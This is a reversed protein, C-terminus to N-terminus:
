PTFRVPLRIQRGSRTTKIQESANDTPAVQSEKTTTSECPNPEDDSEMHAPKLRDISINVNKGRIDVTFHKERKEKIEYPGDYPTHLSPRVFDNRVFVHTSHELDKFVFPKSSDHNSTQIPRIERMSEALEKVFESQPQFKSDIFFEGPLRLPTGYVMQAATTKMDEKYSTRLGLLILPLKHSWDIRNHCMISAKLTRHWREIIGNAQPHYATTRIRDIGLLRSLENFLNSEFQRGQDTTIRAPIGFRSIWTNILAKAVTDAQMDIIPIAEPWRTYRDMITLCYKFENSPPLPGILDINIHEFRQSPLTYQHVASHNHRSIKARQCSLCRKVFDSIESGMHPWVFRQKIMKTTSRAGNHAIGHIKNIVNRRHTSPIFPRANNTSIDCYLTTSSNPIEISKLQMSTNSEDLLKKLEPCTTQADAIQQYDITNTEISAIRSLTDATTNEIGAIHKISTTFQGIYDLQRCQRPSARESNQKFAFTLPKHDTLVDFVRGELMCRFHRIGLYIALLERDYTSYKQQPPTLKLSFFGLPQFQDDIIQHLVAGVATDSADTSLAIQANPAPHVLLTANALSKKCENFHNITTDTWEIPTNDNKKNGPILQVLPAQHNVAQPLFRRYFNIMALFRRLEKAVKPLPYENIAKVKDQLPTIGKSDVLHGLFEISTRGFHCKAPNITLHFQRLREFVQKLHQRHQNIDESAVCIDDLYVFVFKLGRLVAHMYRQFTQASNCLGFLMHTFEFLGFPTTIATKPIDRPEIPIQNYARNLDIKSFVTKGHLIHTFDQIHPLPYRDPITQANLARYDGCPRWEGSSKKVLHLPSAYSSKSPRCIGLKILFEFENKAATFKEPTLRRPKAFTPPGRTEICHTVDATTPKPASENFQTIDKYQELLDAFQTSTDFTKISPSSTISCIGHQALLTQADILKSHKLDVLLNHHQLFDSGIIPNKTDAIIFQWTFPRRLGLDLTLRTAGYTNIITGNAAFLPKDTILANLRHTRTSPIVSVDAGTDVLFKFGSKVDPIFLRNSKENEDANVESDIQTTSSITSQNIRAIPM